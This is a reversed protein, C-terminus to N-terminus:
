RASAQALDELEADVANQDLAQAGRRAIVVLETGPAIREKSRRFWERVRRKVRNREVAGGLKRSATIGLRREGDAARDGSVGILMVFHASSLRRAKAGLRRFDKSERLRETRRLRAEGDAV